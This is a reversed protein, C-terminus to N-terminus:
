VPNADVPPPLRDKGRRDTATITVEGQAILRYVLRAGLFGNAGTVLLRETM